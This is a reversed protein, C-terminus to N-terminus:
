VVREEVKTSFMSFVSWTRMSFMWVAEDIGMMFLVMMILMLMMMMMMVMLSRSM